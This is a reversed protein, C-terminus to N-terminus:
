AHIIVDTSGRRGLLEASTRGRWRHVLLDVSDGGVPLGTITLKTLWEPLTPLVLELRHAHADARLGLMTRLLHFPAAAAWAQPRAPSPIRSPLGSRTARSAASCSRCACTPSGSPSRSSAAPSSTRATPRAAAVQAGRRHARQRAALHLRHSLRGPQLGAPRGRLHPHGLGLVHGAGAAARRGPRRAVGPRDRDVAGPGPELRHTAVPRKDGDLAMAYFGVDDAALVGRRVAGPADDAAADLRAALTTTAGTAPWVPWRGAPPTSTARSRPSRSRRRPSRATAIASRMARIRGARTSCASSALAAPVRRLRRRRPRRLRDIWDLAALAHPWLRDLMADDGTWAHTEGLLILWLPTSDISGYYADHPTEGAGAMEGTRLEHLIKGPEADHWPDDATAQLRALVSSRRSARRDPIFAVTELAAIISDRGFLTTFWPIGAALYAEGEAPRRQAAHGPRAALAALTRDLFEHDSAIRPADSVIRPHRRCRRPRRHPRSRARVDARRGARPPRPPTGDPMSEAREAADAPRRTTTVTWGVTLRANPELRARWTVLVSAGPWTAPDDIPDVTAGEASM